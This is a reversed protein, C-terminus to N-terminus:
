GRDVPIRKTEEKEEEGVPVRIELIGDKYSAKIDDEQVGSPLPLNRVFSGYHFESRVTEGEREESREERRARIHLMGDSATVEVDREPDIGPLEARVVLDDGERVEEVRLWGETPLDLNFFRRWLDPLDFGPQDRRERRALAMPVEKNTSERLTAGASSL